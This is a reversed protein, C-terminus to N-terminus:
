QYLLLLHLILFLMKMMSVITMLGAMTVFMDIANSIWEFVECQNAFVFGHDLFFDALM